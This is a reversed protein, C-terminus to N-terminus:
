RREKKFLGLLGIVLGLISLIVTLLDRPGSAMNRLYSKTQNYERPNPDYQAKGLNFPNSSHQEAM